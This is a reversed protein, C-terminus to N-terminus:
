VRTSPGTRTRISLSKSIRRRMFALGHVFSVTRAHLPSRAFYPCTACVQELYQFVLFLKAESYIVDRLSVINPHRLDKLLSIERIATSPVGEDEDLLRIKKLAVTANTSKDRARYRCSLPPNLSPPSHPHPHTLSSIISVFCFPDTLHSASTGNPEPSASAFIQGRALWRPAIRPWQLRLARARSRM